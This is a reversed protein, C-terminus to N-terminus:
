LLATLIRDAEAADVPDSALLCRRGYEAEYAARRQRWQRDFTPVGDVPEVVLPPDKGALRATRGVRQKAPGSAKGQMDNLLYDLAPVDLGEDALSTAILTGLNGEALLDVHQTRAKQGTASTVLQSHICRARLAELLARGQPKRSVLVLSVRGAGFARDVHAALWGLREERMTLDALAKSYRLRSFLADGGEWRITSRRCRHCFASGREELKEPNV